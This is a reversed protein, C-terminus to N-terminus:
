HNIVIDQRESYPLFPCSIGSFLGCSHETMHDLKKAAGIFDKFEHSQVHKGRWVM